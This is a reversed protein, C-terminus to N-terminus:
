GLAKLAPFLPIYLAVAPLLGEAWVIARFGVALATLFALGVARGKGPPQVLWALTKAHPGRERGSLPACFRTV